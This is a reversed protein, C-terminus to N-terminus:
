YFLMAHFILAKLTTFTEHFKKFPNIHIYLTVTCVYISICM